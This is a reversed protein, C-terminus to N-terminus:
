PHTGPGRAGRNNARWAGRLLAHARAALVVVELLHAAGGAMVREEFHEAVEGKAVVKLFFGNGPRPFQDGLIEGNGAFLEVHRDKFALRGRLGVNRAVLFSVIAPAGQINGGVADEREAHLVIEPLHAFGAGAPRARFDMVVHADGRAVLPM